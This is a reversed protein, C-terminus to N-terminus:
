ETGDTDGENEVVQYAVTAMTRKKVEVAEITEEFLESEQMETAPVPWEVEWLKGDFKFVFAYWVSWRSHRIFTFAEKEYGEVHGWRLDDLDEVQFMRKRM